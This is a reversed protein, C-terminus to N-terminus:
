QDLSTSCLFSQLTGHTRDFIIDDYRCGVWLYVWNFIIDDYRCGVWLYVWNCGGLYSFSDRCNCFCNRKNNHTVKIWKQPTSLCQLTYPQVSQMGLTTNEETCLLRARGAMGQLEDGGAPPILLCFIDVMDSVAFESQGVGACVASPFHCAWRRSCNWM